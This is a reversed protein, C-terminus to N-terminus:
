AAHLAPEGLENPDASDSALQEGRPRRVLRALWSESHRQQAARAARMRDRALEQRYDIEAKLSEPTWELM